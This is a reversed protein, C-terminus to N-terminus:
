PPPSLSVRLEPTTPNKLRPHVSGGRWSPSQPLATLEGLPIQPSAGASISKPIKEAMYFWDGSILKQQFRCNPVM